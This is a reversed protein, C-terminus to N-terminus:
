IIASAMNPPLFIINKKLSAILFRIYSTKGTGPKGYLLVGKPVKAGMKTFKEPKKLFDVIETYTADSQLMTEVVSKLDEPLNDIKSHKRNAM